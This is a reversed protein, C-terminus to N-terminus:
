LLDTLNGPFPPPAHPHRLNFEMRDGAWKFLMVGVALTGIIALATANPHRQVWPSPQKRAYAFEEHPMSISVQAPAVGAQAQRAASAAPHAPAIFTHQLEHSDRPNLEMTNM